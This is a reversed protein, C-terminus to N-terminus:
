LTRSRVLVTMRWFLRVFSPWAFCPKSCRWSHGWIQEGDMDKPFFSFFEDRLTEWIEEGDKRVQCIPQKRTYFVRMTSARM